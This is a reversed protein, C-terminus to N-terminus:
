KKTGYWHKSISEVEQFWQEWEKKDIGRSNHNISSTGISLYEISELRELRICNSIVQMCLIGQQMMRHLSRWLRMCTMSLEMVKRQGEHAQTPRRSGTKAQTLWYQGENAATLRRQGENAATLKRQGENAAAPPWGENAQHHTISFVWGRSTNALSSPPQANPTQRSSHSHGDGVRM